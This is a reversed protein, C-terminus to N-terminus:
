VEGKEIRDAFILPRMRIKCEQMLYNAQDKSTEIRRWNPSTDTPSLEIDGCSVYAVPSQNHLWNDVADAKIKAILSAHPQLALASGIITGEYYKKCEPPLMDSLEQKAYKLADNKVALAAALEKNAEMIQNNVSILTNIQEQLKQIEQNLEAQNLETM